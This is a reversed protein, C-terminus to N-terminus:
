LNESQYDGFPTGYGGGIPVDDISVADGDRLAQACRECLEAQEVLSDITVQLDGLPVGQAAALDVLRTAMQRQSVALREFTELLEATTTM